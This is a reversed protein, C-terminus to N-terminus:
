FMLLGYQYFTEDAQLEKPIPHMPIWYIQSNGECAVKQVLNGECGLIGPTLNLASRSEQLKTDPPNILYFM